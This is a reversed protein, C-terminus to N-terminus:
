WAARKKKAVPKSPARVPAPVAKKTKKRKAYPADGRVVRAGGPFARYLTQPHLKLVKAIAPIENGAKMLGIAKARKEATFKVSGPRVPKKVKKAM